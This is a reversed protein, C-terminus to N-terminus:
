TRRGYFQPNNNQPWYLGPPAPLRHPSMGFGFPNNQDQHVQPHVYHGEWQHRSFPASPGPPNLPTVVNGIHSHGLMSQPRQRGGSVSGQNRFKYHPPESPPYVYPQADARAKNPTPPTYNLVPVTIRPPPEYPAMRGNNATSQTMNSGRMTMRRPAANHTPRANFPVTMRRASDDYYGSKNSTYPTLVPAALPQQPVHTQPSPPSQPVLPIPQSSPQTSGCPPGGLATVTKGASEQPLHQLFLCTITNRSLILDREKRRFAKTGYKENTLRSVLLYQDQESLQFFEPGYMDAEFWRYVKYVGVRSKGGDELRRVVTFIFQPTTDFAEVVAKDIAFMWGHTGPSVHCLQEILHSPFDIALEAAHEVASAVTDADGISLSVREQFAAARAAKAAEAGGSLIRQWSVGKLNPRTKAPARPRQYQGVVPDVATGRIRKHYDRCQDLLLKKLEVDESRLVAGSVSHFFDELAAMHARLGRSHVIRLSDSMTSETMNSESMNSESM